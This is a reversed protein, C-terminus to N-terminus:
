LGKFLRTEANALQSPTGLLVLVDDLELLTDPTPDVVRIRQRRVAIVEVGLEKMRLGALTRGIAHTGAAMVVSHLRTQQREELAEEHVREGGRYIGRLL